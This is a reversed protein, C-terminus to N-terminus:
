KSKKLLFLDRFEQEHRFEPNTALAVFQEKSLKELVGRPLTLFVNPDLNSLSETHYSQIEELIKKDKTHVSNEASSVAQISFLLLFM